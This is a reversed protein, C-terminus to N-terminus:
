RGTRTEIENFEITIVEEISFPIYTGNIPPDSIESQYGASMVSWTNTTGSSGLVVEESTNDDSNGSYVEEPVVGAISRDENRDTGLLHGTEHIMTKAAHLSTNGKSNKIDDYLIVIM